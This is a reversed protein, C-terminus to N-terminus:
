CYYKKLAKQAAAETEFLEDESFSEDEGNLIAYYTLEVDYCIFKKGKIKGCLTAEISKIKGGKVTSKWEKITGSGNCQPCVKNKDKVVINKQGDCTECTERCEGDVIAWFKDGTFFKTEVETKITKM